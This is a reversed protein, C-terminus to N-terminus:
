LGVREAEKGLRHHIRVAEEALPASLPPYVVPANGKGMEYVARLAKEAVKRSEGPKANALGLLLQDVLLSFNM